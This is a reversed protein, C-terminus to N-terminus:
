PTPCEFAKLVMGLAMAAHRISVLDHWATEGTGKHRCAFEFPYYRVMKPEPKPPPSDLRKREKAARMSAMKRLVAERRRKRYSLFVDQNM